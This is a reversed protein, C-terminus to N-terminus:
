KGFSEIVPIQMRIKLLSTNSDVIEKNINRTRKHSLMARIKMYDETLCIIYCLYISELIRPRAALLCANFVRRSTPIFQGQGISRSCPHRILDVLNFRVGRINEQMIVGERTAWQFGKSISYKVESLGIVKFEEIENCLANPGYGEPGVEWINKSEEADWHYKDVLINNGSEGHEVHGLNGEEIERCLEEGIPECTCWMRNQKNPTKCFCIPSKRTATERYIIVPEGIILEYEKMYKEKLMQIYIQIDNLTSGAIVNQEQYIEIICECFYILKSLFNMAAFLKPRHEPYKTVIKITIVPTFKTFQLKKFAYNGTIDTIIGRKNMHQSIGGLLVLNGCTVEKVEKCKGKIKSNNRLIQIKTIPHIEDKHRFINENDIIKVKMEDGTQPLKLTGSFIRGLAFLEEGKLVFTTIYIMLPSAPDCDRIGAYYKDNIPGNYLYPVRSSQAEKPSPLHLIIMGLLSNRINLWKHLCLAVLEEGKYENYEKEDLIIGIAKLKRNLINTKEAYICKILQLIPDLIFAVFARKLPNGKANQGKNRWCKGQSDYYNDGWLKEEMRHRDIGFKESYLTAFYLITYSWKNSISGFAIRGLIASIKNTLHPIQDTQKNINDVINLLNLYIDEANAEGQLLAKQLNNIMFVSPLKERRSEELIHQIPSNINITHQFYDLIILLGDSYTLTPIQEYPLLLHIDSHIINILYELNDEM